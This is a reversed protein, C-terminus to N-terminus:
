LTLYLGARAPRIHPGAELAFGMPSGEPAGHALSSEDVSIGLGPADGLVIGGDTIVHDVAIGAPVGLDQVECALHNPMAAAAHAAPNAYYGVPSIPLDHAYALNAVRLFHTIGFVSGAQVVDVARARILSTYQELGVLNEGTAVAANVAGSVTALGDADWRRVPEEIWALPVAAEVRRVYQVAQKRQWIENADLMMSVREGGAGLVDRVAVLREIDRTVSLGGKLKGATFGRQSFKEYHAILKEDDLGIDLGSAYGPVFRDEAGLLRWLPLDLAKAKIDWLATDIVGITGFAAAHGDKFVRALMRDYNANTAFPDHGEVGPFVRDIEDHPGLGIGDIGVDTHIVLIPVRTRGSAVVGNADGIPRGWDHETSLTTFGTVKM